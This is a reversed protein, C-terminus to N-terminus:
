NQNEQHANALYTLHWVDIGHIDEELSVVNQALALKRGPHSVVQRASM